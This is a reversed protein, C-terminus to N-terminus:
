KLTGFRNLPWYTWFARGHVTSIKVPGFTRSDGSNTRNDGMVWIYGKPITIPLSIVQLYSPKGYTYPEDLKKGDVYVAGEKLDVTQGGVAIVRKILTPFEGTPDDFVVIDKYKPTGFGRFVLKDALVRDKLQITPLMSGSPVLYPQILYAKIGQAIAVALIVMIVTEVVWRITSPEASDLQKRDSRNKIPVSEKDRM